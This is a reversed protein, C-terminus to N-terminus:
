FIIINLLGIKFPTGRVDVQWQLDPLPGITALKEIYWAQLVM